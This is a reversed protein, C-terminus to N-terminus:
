LSEETARAIIAIARRQNAEKQTLKENGALRELQQEARQLADLTLKIKDSLSERSGEPRVDLTSVFEESLDDALKAIAEKDNAAEIFETVSESNDRLFSELQDGMEAAHSRCENRAFTLLQEEFRERIAPMKAILQDPLGHLYSRTEKELSRAIPTANAEILGIAEGTAIEAVIKPRLFDNIFYTLGSFYGCILFMLILGSWKARSAAVRAEKLEKRVYEVAASEQQNNDSM